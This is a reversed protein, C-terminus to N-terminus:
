ANRFIHYARSLSDASRNWTWNNSLTNLQESFYLRTNRNRLLFKLSSVFESEEAILVHRDPVLEVGEIAKETAVMPLALSIYDYLKTKTGGGHLIPVIAVDAANLVSFLDEVFGISHVNPSSVAPPNKGVLLFEVDVGRKRVAPAIRDDILKAAECNPPHDYHGHFVALHEDGVGLRERVAAVSDLKSRDVPPM